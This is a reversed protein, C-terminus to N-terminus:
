QDALTRLSTSTFLENAKDGSSQEFTYVFKYSPDFVSPYDADAPALTQRNQGDNDFVVLQGNSVYTLRAGDMWVAHSQPKDMAAPVTYSFGQANDADYVAFSTGHEFAIYQGSPSSTVMDPATISFVDVPVAAGLRKNTIQAVPNEYVYATNESSAAMAVYTKGDYSSLKLLYTTSVAARRITYVTGGDNYNIDVKTKDNLDPTAYLATSTGYTDYALVNTLYPVLQPANLTARSVTHGATDFVQYQDYKANNFRVEVNGTPLTLLKTLNVVQEPASRSLLIYEVKGDYTHALLVHTNDGAWGVVAMSQAAGASLVGAPLNLVVPVQKINNLDYLDYSALSAPRAVLLWRRDLSQTVFAPPTIYSQRTTTTLDTPFLFPYVYSGVQGGSVTISRQWDRYGTRKLDIGYTGSPLVLRTNTTSKYLKGDLYIEAPHPNSSLFVLGSQIVQGDKYGFGYAVFLLVLSMLVVACGVLVYGVMLRTFQRRRERPDMYNLTEM